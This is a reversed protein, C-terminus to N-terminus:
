EYPAEGPVCEGVCSVLRRERCCDTRELTALIGDEEEDPDLVDLRRERACLFETSSDDLGRLLHGAHGEAHEGIRLSV